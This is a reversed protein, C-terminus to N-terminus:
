CLGVSLQRCTCYVCSLSHLEKCYPRWFLLNWIFLCYWLILIQKNHQIQQMNRDLRITMLCNFHHLKLSWSFPFCKKFPSSPLLLILWVYGKPTRNDLCWHVNKLEGAAGLGQNFCNTKARLLECGARQETMIAVELRSRRSAYFHIPTFRTM